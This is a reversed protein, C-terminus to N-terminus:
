KLSQRLQKQNRVLEAIKPDPEYLSLSLLCAKEKRKCLKLLNYIKCSGM